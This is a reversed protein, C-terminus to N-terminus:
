LAPFRITTVAGRDNHLTVKGGLGSVVLDQILEWGVGHRESCLVEEPYGPGDDRFELVAAGASNVDDERTIRVAIHGTQSAPWAYKISNITLESIILALSDAHQPAVRLPSPSVDVVVYRDRPLAYLASGIIQRALESVPLPSWEAASLMHHATALGRIRNILNDPIVQNIPQNGAQPRGREMEVLYIISNLNNQVRHNVERLLVAKIEADRQTQRQLTQVAELLRTNRIAVAAQTAFLSLLEVDAPSFTRPPASNVTLVGLFEEGWRILVGVAAAVPLGAYDSARGEWHQYDNVIIPQDTEWVKGALGQGRQLTTEIPVVYPDVTVVWELVGPDPRYLYLGGGTAGLLQTARSVISHLLTDLDLEATIELGMERLAVLQATRQRLAQEARVRETIDSVVIRCQRLGGEAAQLTMGDLRAYFQSGDKRVLRIEVAPANGNELLRRRHVAYRDRDEWAVFDSLLRGILLSRAVGLLAAGTLNAEVVTGNEDLSFYGIPAFDYLHAYRDRSAHLELQAASLEENQLELEIQHVQLDYVLDQIDEPSLDELNAPPSARIVDEARQRLPPFKDESAKQTM